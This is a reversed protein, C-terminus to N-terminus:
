LGRQEETRGYADLSGQDLVKPKTSVKTTSPNRSITPGDVGAVVLHSDVPNQAMGDNQKHTEGVEFPDRKRSFDDVDISKTPNPV